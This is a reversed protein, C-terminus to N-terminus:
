GFLEESGHYGTTAGEFLPAFLPFYFLGCRLAACVVAISV